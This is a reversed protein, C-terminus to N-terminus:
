LRFTWGIPSLNVLQSVSLTNESTVPRDTSVRGCRRLSRRWHKGKDPGSLRGLVRETSKKDTTPRIILEMSEVFDLSKTCIWHRPWERSRRRCKRFSVQSPVLSRGRDEGTRATHVDPTRTPQVDRM